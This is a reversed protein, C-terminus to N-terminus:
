HNDIEVETLAFEDDFVFIGEGYCIRLRGYKDAKKFILKQANLSFHYTSNFVPHSLITDAFNLTTSM